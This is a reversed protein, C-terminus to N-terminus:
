RFFGSVLLIGAVPFPSGHELLQVIGFV